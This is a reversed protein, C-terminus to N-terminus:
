GLGTVGLAALVRSAYGRSGNTLIVIPLGLSGLLEDLEPDPALYKPIPLDHVFELYGTADIGQHRMLGILTLHYEDRYRRRLRDAEPEAIGLVQRMYLNIRDDVAPFLGSDRPYITNDLDLILLDLM